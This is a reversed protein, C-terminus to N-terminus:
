SLRECVGHHEGKKLTSLFNCSAYREGETAQRQREIGLSNSMADGLIGELALASLQKM